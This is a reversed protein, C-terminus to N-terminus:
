RARSASSPSPRTTARRRPRRRPPEGARLVAQRRRRPPPQDVLRRDVGVRQRGHRGPRLREGPVLRGARHAAFGARAPRAGRSTPGTGRTRWSGAAPAPRTGGRSRPATSAAAPPTSGSPRPRCGRARGVDAYAVADEHAVHVVPHDLRDDITSAPGEPARWRRAPTWRGGSASTACTSRVRADTHVGAFGARPEGAPAGPFDAPDLPREAVTVYGTADVFAAFQANTVPAGTSGSRTSGSATPPRKRPTTATPAWSTVRRRRPRRRRPRRATLAPESGVEIRTTDFVVLDHRWLREVFARRGPGLAGSRHAAGDISRFTELRRRDVFLVLDTDSTARDILAAAAGPPLREEVAVATPVAVPVWRTSPRRRRLRSRGVGDDDDGFAIATHRTITGRFLEVLPTSTPPGAAVRHARRAADRQDHRLGPLYPAQSSGDDSGCAPARSSSSCSRARRVSRERPNCCPTPSRTTTPSTGRRRAAAPRAPHGLPLERLTAVLDALEAPSTASARAPPLLGAAHYVGVRGYRAYVMLTVAGRPALVTACAGCGSARIPSTTCCAPACSTTSGNASSAWTRSRCVISRRPQRRRPARRPGPHARRSAASVDIGVM